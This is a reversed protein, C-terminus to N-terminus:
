ISLSPRKVGFDSPLSVSAVPSTPKTMAPILSILPAGTPSVIVIAKAAFIRDGVEKFEAPIREPTQWVSQIPPLKVEQMDILGTSHQPARQKLQGHLHLAVRHSLSGARPSGAIIEINM